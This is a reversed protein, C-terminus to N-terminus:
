WVIKWLSMVKVNGDTLNPLELNEEDKNVSAAQRKSQLWGLPGLTCGTTKMQMKRFIPSASCKDTNVSQTHTIWKFSEGRSGPMTAWM